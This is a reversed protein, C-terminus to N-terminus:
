IELFGREDSTVIEFVAGGTSPSLFLSASMM